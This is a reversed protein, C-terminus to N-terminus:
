VKDILSFPAKVKSSTGFRGASAKDELDVWATTRNVTLIKARQGVMYRPKTRSNFVVTDGPRMSNVKHILVVDKQLSRRQTVVNAIQEIEADHNGSALALVIQATTIASM